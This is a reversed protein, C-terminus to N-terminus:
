SSIVRYNVNGKTQLIVFKIEYMCINQWFYM